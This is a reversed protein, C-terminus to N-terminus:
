AAFARMVLQNADAFSREVIEKRRKYDM